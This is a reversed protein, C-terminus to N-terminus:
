SSTGLQLKVLYFSFVISNSLQNIKQLVEQLLLPQMNQKQIIDIVLMSVSNVLTAAIREISFITIPNNSKINININPHVAILFNILM